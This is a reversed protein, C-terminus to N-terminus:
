FIKKKKKHNQIEYDFLRCLLSPNTKFSKLKIKKLIIKGAETLFCSSVTVNLFHNIVYHEVPLGSM